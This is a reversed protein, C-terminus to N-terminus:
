LKCSFSLICRQHVETLSIVKVVHQAIAPDSNWCDFKVEDGGIHVYQAGDGATKSVEQLLQGVMTRAAPSTPNMALCDDSDVDVKFRSTAMWEWCNAMMEPHSKAVALTHAPTDIEFVM